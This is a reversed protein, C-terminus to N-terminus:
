QHKKERIKIDDFFKKIEKLTLKELAAKRKERLKKHLENM